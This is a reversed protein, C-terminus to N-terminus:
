QLKKPTPPCHVRRIIHISGHCKASQNAITTPPAITRVHLNAAAKQNTRNNQDGL